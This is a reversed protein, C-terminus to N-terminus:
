KPNSYIIIIAYTITFAVGKPRPGAPILIENLGKLLYTYRLKHLSVIIALFTVGRTSRNALWYEITAM